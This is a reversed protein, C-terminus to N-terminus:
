EEDDGNLPRRWVFNAADDISGSGIYMAERRGWEYGRASGHDDSAGPARAFAPLAM